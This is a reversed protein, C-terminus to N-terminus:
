IDSPDPLISSYYEDCKEQTYSCEFISERFGWNILLTVIHHIEEDKIEKSVNEFLTLCSLFKKCNVISNFIERLPIKYEHEKVIILTTLFKRRCEEDKLFKEAEEVNKLSYYISEETYGLGELQPFVYWMWHTQKLGEKLESFVIELDKYFREM